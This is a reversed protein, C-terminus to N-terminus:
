GNEREERTTVWIAKAPTEVMFSWQCLGVRLMRALDMAQAEIDQPDRPSRPYNVLRVCVGVEAGGTYVFTTPTVTVCLGVEMCYRRCIREAEQADGAIWINAYFAPVIREASTSHEM